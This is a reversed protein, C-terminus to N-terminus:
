GLLGDLTDFATKTIRNWNVLHFDTYHEDGRNQKQIHLVLESFNGRFVDSQFELGADLSKGRFTYVYYWYTM